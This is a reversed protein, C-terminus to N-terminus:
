SDTKENKVGNRWYDKCRRSCKVCPMEWEEKDAYVCAACGTEYNGFYREIWKSISFILIMEYTSLPEKLIGNMDFKKYINRLDDADSPELMGNRM